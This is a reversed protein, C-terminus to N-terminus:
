NHTPRAVSPREASPRAVSPREASPPDASPREASPRTARARALESLGTVTKGGIEAEKLLLEFGDGKSDSQQLRVLLFQWEKALWFTTSRRSNQRARILKVTDIHGIPTEIWEDGQIEFQYDKLKGGDAIQYKLFPATTSGTTADRYRAILDQRMQLQYSLKDLAGTPIDMYWPKSEVDNRVRQKAWVFNLIAHRNKGIGERHYQYELPVLQGDSSWVFLTQETITALFSRATATLLYRDDEVRQLERIGEARVPLGNYDGDYVARFTTPAAATSAPAAAVSQDAWLSAFLLTILLLTVSRTM